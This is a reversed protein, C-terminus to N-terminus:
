KIEEPVKDYFTELWYCKEAPCRAYVLSKYLSNNGM